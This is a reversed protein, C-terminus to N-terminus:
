PQDVEPKTTKRLREAVNGAERFARLVNGGLIKHIDTESYGRRVLEEPRRRIDDVTASITTWGCDQLRAAKLRDHKFGEPKAHWEVSDYEAAVKADPWAFERDNM